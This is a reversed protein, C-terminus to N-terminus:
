LDITAKPIINDFTTTQFKNPTNYIPGSKYRDIHTYEKLTIGVFGHLHNDRDDRWRGSEVYFEMQAKFQRSFAKITNIPKIKHYEM